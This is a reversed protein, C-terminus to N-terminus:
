FRLGALLAEIQGTAEPGRVESAPGTFEIALVDTASLSYCVIRSILPVDKDTYAVYAELRTGDGSM